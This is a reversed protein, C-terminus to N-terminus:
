RWRNLSEDYYDDFELNDYAAASFDDGYDDDVWKDFYKPTPRRRNTFAKERRPSRPMGRRTWHMAQDFELEDYDEYTPNM